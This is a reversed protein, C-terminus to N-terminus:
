KRQITYLNLNAAHFNTVALYKGNPSVGLGTPYAGTKYRRIIKWRPVDVVALENRGRLSVYLVRGGPDLAITNPQGPM